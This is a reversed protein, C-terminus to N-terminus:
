GIMISVSGALVAILAIPWMIRWLQAPTVGGGMLGSAVATLQPSIVLALTGNQVGPLVLPGLGSARGLAAQLPMMAANGGVNTGCFFGAVAALVPAAYPAATGFGAVLASALAVPIGATSLVRALVVFGVLAMAPRRARQMAAWALKPSKGDRIFLVLAALAISMMAHNLALTPLGPYPRLAPADRWLQSVLLLGTLLLYPFAANALRLVDDMRRPPNALLLRASLVAGSAMMGCLQWPLVRHLGILLAGLLSIWAAQRLRITWTIAVDLKACWWWFLPLLLLLSPALIMANRESMAQVDVGALTAGIATGPGLGGWPIGVQAMLGIAAAPAGILGLRRVAGVAFVTGVGFGTAAETFMGLLFSATFAHDAMAGQRPVDATATPRHVGAHFVLGATIIGVPIAAMWMGELVSQVLAPGFRAADPQARWFAPLALLLAAACSWLPGARGSALLVVLAILPLSQILLM